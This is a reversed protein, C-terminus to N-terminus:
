RGRPERREIDIRLLKPQEGAAARRELRRVVAEGDCEGFITHSGELDPVAATTIFFQTSGSDEVGTNGMALVGPRDFSDGPSIEDQLLFGGTAQKGRRGTQVFQGEIARHWVLDVYYPETHWSGDDALFPRVGRALGVFNAVTLPAHDPELQCDVDGEDTRLVAWLEGTAPLGETAAEFSFRGGHPDGLAENAAVLDDLPPPFPAAQGPGLPAACAALFGLGLV